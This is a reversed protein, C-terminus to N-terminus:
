SFNGGIDRLITGPSHQVDLTQGRLTITTKRACSQGHSGSSVGFISVLHRDSAPVYRTYAWDTLFVTKPERESDRRRDSKRDTTFDWHAPLGKVPEGDLVFSLALRVPTMFFRDALLRNKSMDANNSLPM